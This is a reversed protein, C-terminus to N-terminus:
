WNQVGQSSWPWTASAIGDGDTTINACFNGIALEKLKPLKDLAMRGAKETTEANERAVQRRLEQGHPGFYADSILTLFAWMCAYIRQITAATDQLPVESVAVGPVVM